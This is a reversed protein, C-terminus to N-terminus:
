DAQEFYLNLQMEDPLRQPVTSCTSASGDAEKILIKELEIDVLRLGYREAVGELADTLGAMLMARKLPRGADLSNTDSSWAPDAELAALMDCYGIVGGERLPYRGLALIRMGSSIETEILRAIANGNSPCDGNVSVMRRDDSAGVRCPNAFILEEGPEEEAQSANLCGPLLLAAGLSLLASRFTM